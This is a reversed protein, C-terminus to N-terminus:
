EIKELNIFYETHMDGGKGAGSIKDVTGYFRHNQNDTPIELNTYYGVTEEGDNYTIYLHEEADGFPVAEKMMHQMPDTSINGEIWIKQGVYDSIPMDADLQMYESDESNSTTSVPTETTTEPLPTEQEEQIPAECSFIIATSVFLMLFYFSTRM